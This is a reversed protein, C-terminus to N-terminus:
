REDQLRVIRRPVYVFASDCSSYPTVLVSDSKVGFQITSMTAAAQTVISNEGSRPESTLYIIKENKEKIIEPSSSKEGRLIRETRDQMDQLTDARAMKYGLFFCGILWVAFIIFWSIRKM